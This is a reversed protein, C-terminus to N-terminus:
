SSWIRELVTEPKIDSLQGTPSVIAVFKDNAPLLTQPHTSGLLAVAYTNVAVALQLAAGEPCLLLDAGAIMAALKGTDAPTTVKLRPCMTVLVSVWDSAEPDQVVVIPLDPQRQQFDEIIAQWSGMPYRNQLQRPKNFQPDGGDILVYGTDKIGLRKQEAEAWELDKTPLNISLPPCPTTIGVGKLLDHYRDATYQDPKLAVTQTLFTSGWGPYGIRVPIGSLWLTFGVAWSREVSLVMDYEQERIQGLFNSWDALSNQGQYDFRILKNVLKCVRYASVARPEVAVDILSQPYARKLDELTPFFLVQDGIGGSILALIHM